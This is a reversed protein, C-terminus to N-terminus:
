LETVKIYDLYRQTGGGLLLARVFEAASHTADTGTAAPTDVDLIDDYWVTYATGVMKLRIYPTLGTGSLTAITELTTPTGASWEELTVADGVVAICYGSKTGWPARIFCRCYDTGGASGARFRVIMDLDASGSDPRHYASYTGGQVVEVYGDGGGVRAEFTGQNWNADLDHYWPVGVDPTHADLLTDGTETFTDELVIPGFTEGARRLLHVFDIDGFTQEVGDAGWDISAIEEEATGGEHVAVGMINDGIARRMIGTFGSPYNQDEPVSSAAANRGYSAIRLPNDTQPVIAPVLPINDSNYFENHYTDFPNGSTLGGRVVLMCVESMRGTSTSAWEETTDGEAAGAYRYWVGHKANALGRLLRETYGGPPTYVAGERGGVFVLILDGAATDTPITLDFPSATVEHPDSGVVQWGGGGGVADRDVIGVASLLGSETTVFPVAMRPASMLTM